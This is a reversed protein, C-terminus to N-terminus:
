RILMGVSFLMFHTYISRYLVCASRGAGSASM